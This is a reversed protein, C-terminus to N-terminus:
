GYQQPDFLEGGSYTVLTGNNIEAQLLEIVLNCALTLAQLSDAGVVSTQTPHLPHLSVHCAWEQRINGLFQPIGIEVKFPVPRAENARKAWLITHAAIDNM